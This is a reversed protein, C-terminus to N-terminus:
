FPIEKRNNEIEKRKEESLYIELSITIDNALAMIEDLEKEQQAWIKRIHDKKARRKKQQAKKTMCYVWNGLLIIDDYIKNDILKM